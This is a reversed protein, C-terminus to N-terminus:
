QDDDDSDGEAPMTLMEQEDHEAALLLKERASLRSYEGECKPGCFLRMADTFPEGCRPNLCECRPTLRPTRAALSRVRDIADQTNQAELESAYDLEDAM